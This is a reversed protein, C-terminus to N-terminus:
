LGATIQYNVKVQCYLTKTTARRLVAQISYTFLTANKALDKLDLTTNVPITKTTSFSDPIGSLTGISEYAANTNSKIKLACSSLNQFNSTSDPNNLILEISTLKMAKINSIDLQNSSKDRILSDLNMSFNQTGLDAYTGAATIPIAITANSNTYGFDAKALEKLKDCSSILLITTLFFLVYRM